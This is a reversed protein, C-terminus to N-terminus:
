ETLTFASASQRHNPKIVVWHCFKVSGCKFLMGFDAMGHPPLHKRTTFVSSHAHLRSHQLAMQHLSMKLCWRLIQLWRAPKLWLLTTISQRRCYFFSSLAGQAHTAEQVHREPYEAHTNKHRWNAYRGNKGVHCKVKLLSGGNSSGVCLCM